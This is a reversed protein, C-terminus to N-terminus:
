SQGRVSPHPISPILRSKGQDIIVVISSPSVVRSLETDAWGQARYHIKTNNPNPNPNPRPDPNQLQSPPPSQPSTSVYINPSGWQHIPHFSPQGQLDRSSKKPVRSSPSQIACLVTCDDRVFPVSRIDIVLFTRSLILVFAVFQFQRVFLSSTNRQSYTSGAGGRGKEWKREYFQYLIFVLM